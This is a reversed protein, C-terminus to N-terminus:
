SYICLNHLKRVSYFVIGNEARIFNHRKGSSVAVHWRSLFAFRIWSLFFIYICTLMCYCYFSMNMIMFVAVRHVTPERTFYFCLRFKMVSQMMMVTATRCCPSRLRLSPSTTLRLCRRASYPFFTPVVCIPLLTAIKSMISHRIVVMAAAAQTSSYLEFYGM